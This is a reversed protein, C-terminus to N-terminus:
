SSVLLQQQLKARREPSLAAAKQLYSDTGGFETDITHFAAELFEPRVTGLVEMVERPYRDSEKVKMRQNTLLYDDIIAERPVDLASLLMAVMFGTRDKGATCHVLLPRGERALAHEFLAALYGLSNRAFNRYAEAMLQATIPALRTEGNAILGDLKQAVSPEIPLSHVTARPWACVRKARETTGRLDIVCVDTGLWRELAAIDEEHLEALHGSRLIRGRAIVRGDSTRLGGVDRFNPAGLLRM